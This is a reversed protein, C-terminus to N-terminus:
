SVKVYVLFDAINSGTIGTFILDNMRKFFIYSNNNRLYDNPNLKKKGAKKLSSRDIIAGAADTNDIGDSDIAVMTGRVDKIAGLLLEQNRGGKGGGGKVTVTTEGAAIFATRLRSMSALKKGVRRAEGHIKTSYKIADLGLRRAKEAMADVAVKNNLLLINDVNRFYKDERPTKFMKIKGLKFKKIIREDEELSCKDKVTPGSAIVSLDDGIVDSFIISVLKAPYVHRALNGGGIRSLHKRVVNMERIDMGSKLLKKNIKIMEKLPIAPYSMLASAGGSILCIVLDEKGADKVIKLIRKTAEVNKGSVIPHSGKVTKIRRLKKVHTDIILGDTIRGDLIKEVERAMSYAAKGGGIVFIRKYKNLNYSKGNIKLTNYRLKINKRFINETKIAQLGAEIIQLALRRERSSALSKFNKIIM